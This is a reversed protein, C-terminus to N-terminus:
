FEFPFKNKGDGKLDLKAVQSLVGFITGIFLGAIGLGVVKSADVQELPKIQIIERINKPITPKKIKTSM